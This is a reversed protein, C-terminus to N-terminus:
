RKAHRGGKNYENRRRRELRIKKQSKRPPNWMMPKSNIFLSRDYGNAGFISTLAAWTGTTGARNM